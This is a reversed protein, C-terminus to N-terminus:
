CLDSREEDKKNKEENKIKLKQIFNEYPNLGALNMEQWIAHLENGSVISNQRINVSQLIKKINKIFRKPLPQPQM